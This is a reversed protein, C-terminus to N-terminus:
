YKMYLGTLSVLIVALVIITKLVKRMDITKTTISIQGGLNFIYIHNNPFLVMKKAETSYCNNFSSFNLLVIILGFFKRNM